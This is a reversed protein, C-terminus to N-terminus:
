KRMSTLINEQHKEVIQELIKDTEERKQKIYDINQQQQKLINEIEDDQERRKREADKIYKPHIGQNIKTQTEPATFIYDKGIENCSLYSHSPVLDVNTYAYADSLGSMEHTMYGLLKKPQNNNNQAPPVNDVLERKQSNKNERINRVWTFIQDDELFLNMSPVILTPVIRINKPINNLNMDVCICKIYQLLNESKLISLVSHCKQCKQSYFLINPRQM